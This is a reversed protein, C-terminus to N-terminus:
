DFVVELVAKSKLQDLGGGIQVHYYQILMNLLLSREARKLSEDPNISMLRDFITKECYFPHTPRNMCSSGEELDFYLDNPKLLPRIGMHDFLEVLFTIHFLSVNLNNSCLMGIKNEIFQYLLLNQEEEKIVKSLFEALFFRIANTAIDEKYLFASNVINLEKLRHISTKPSYYCVLQIINLPQLLKVQNNKRSKSRNSIISLLGKEQSLVKSIISSDGYKLSHLVIAKSSLLM